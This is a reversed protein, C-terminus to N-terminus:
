KEVRRYLIWNIILLMVLGPVAFVVSLFFFEMSSSAGTFNNGPIITLSSLFKAIIYSVPAMAWFGKAYHRVLTAIGVFLIMDVTLMLAMDPLPRGTILFNVWPAMVGGVLASRSRFLVIGVLPAYFVPLLRVGAPVASEVPVLHILFPLLCSAILIVAANRADVLVDSLSLSLSTVKKM